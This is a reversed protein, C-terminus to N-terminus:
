KGHYRYGKHVRKVEREKSHVFQTTNKGGGGERKTPTETKEEKEKGKVAM